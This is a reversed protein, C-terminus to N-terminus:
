KTPRARLSKLYYGRVHFPWAQVSSPGLTDEPQQPQSKPHPRQPPLFIRTVLPDTMLAVVTSIYKLLDLFISYYALFAGQARPDILLV